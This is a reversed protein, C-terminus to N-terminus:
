RGAENRDDAERWEGVVRTVPYHPIRDGDAHVRKINSFDRAMWRAHAEDEARRANTSGEARVGWEVTAEGIEANRAEATEARKRWEDREAMVALVATRQRLLATSADSKARQEAAVLQERLQQEHLPLVAALLNRAEEEHDSYPTRGVTQLCTTCHAALGARVLEDSVDAPNMPEAM